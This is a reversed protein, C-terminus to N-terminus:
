DSEDRRREVQRLVEAADRKELAASLGELMAASVGGKGIQYIPETKMALSRLKARQKSTM